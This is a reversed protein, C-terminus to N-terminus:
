DTMKAISPLSARITATLREAAEGLKDPEWIITVLHSTDFHVKPKGHEDREDWASKRCTYIVPRGLGEAFGAEWYAGKNGHTLDALVFRATRLAVRLQDDILGAAQKDTLLRLEFGAREVAARFCTTIVQNLEPDGFQVAMFATRSVVEARKLAEYREWGAMTLRLGPQGNGMDRQEFLSSLKGQALLWGYGAGPNNPTIGAGIWASVEPISVQASEAPSPQREGAWLILRDAQEAPSPLSEDLRFASIDDVTILVPERDLRQMRRIIQSLNARRRPRDLYGNPIPTPTVSRLMFHGCRQCNCLTVYGQPGSQPRVQSQIPENCVPCINM